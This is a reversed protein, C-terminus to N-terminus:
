DKKRKLSHYVSYFIIFPLLLLSAISFLLGFVSFATFLIFDTFGPRTDIGYKDLGFQKKLEEIPLDLAIENTYFDHYLNKTKRGRAFAKLVRWPNVPIGMMTASTDIFFAAWYKKCGSGIEWASIECEESFTTKYGTLMHHIDHKLVAKRRADFNPFYINLWSTLEIKVSPSSQGGDAGLHNEEYFKKLLQGPTQTNM